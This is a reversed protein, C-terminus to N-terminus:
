LAWPIKKLTGDAECILTYPEFDADDVCTICLDTESELGLARPAPVLSEGSPLRRYHIRLTRAPEGDSERARAELRATRTLLDRM